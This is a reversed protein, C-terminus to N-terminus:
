LFHMFSDVYVFGRQGDIGRLNGRLFGDASEVDDIDDVGACVVVAVHEVKNGADDLVLKALRVDASRLGVLGLSLEIAEVDSLGGVSLEQDM